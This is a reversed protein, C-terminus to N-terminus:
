RSVRINIINAPGYTNYLLLHFTKYWLATNTYMRDYDLITENKYLKAMKLIPSKKEGNLM